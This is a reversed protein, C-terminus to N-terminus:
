IVYDPDDGPRKSPRVDRFWKDKADINDDLHEADCGLSVAIREWIERLRHVHLDDLITRVAHLISADPMDAVTKWVTAGDAASPSRESIQTEAPQSMMLGIMQELPAGEKEEGIVRIPRTARGAAVMVEGFRSPPDFLISGVIRRIQHTSQRSQVFRELDFITRINFQRLLMFRELGVITCLQAQAVWDIVEYIGYPTEIHLLIPNATALNEVEYMGVEELRYRTHFDIGDIVDLPVSDVLSNFRNDTRKIIQFITSLWPLTLLQRGITYLLETGAGPISGAVFALFMLALTMHDQATAAAPVAATIAPAAPGAAAAVAAAAATTAGAAPGAAGSTVAQALVAFVITVVVTEVFHGFARIATSATLDFNTVARMLHRITFFYAGLLGAQVLMLTRPGGIANMVEAFRGQPPDFLVFVGSAVAIGYPVFALLLTRNAAIKFVRAKAVLEYLGSSDDGSGFNACKRSFETAECLGLLDVVYKTVVFEFSPSREPNFAQERGDSRVYSKRFFLRRFEEILRIRRIRVDHNVLIFVIPTLAGLVVAAFVVYSVQPLATM